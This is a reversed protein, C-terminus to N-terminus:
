KPEDDGAYPEDRLDHLLDVTEKLGRYIPRCTPCVFSHLRVYAKLHIPLKDDIEDSMHKRVHNCIFM